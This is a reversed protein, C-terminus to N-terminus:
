EGKVEMHLVYTNRWGGQFRTTVLELTRKSVLKRLESKTFGQFELEKEFIGRGLVQGEKQSVMNGNQDFVGTPAGKVVFGKEFIPMLDDRTM